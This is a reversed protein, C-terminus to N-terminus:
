VRDARITMGERALLVPMPATVWRGLEDLEFDSRAPAHHFLVLRGAGVDTAAQIVESITCHGYDDAIEKEADLFQAGHVLVAVDRLIADIEPSRRALQTHDPLYAVSEAGSDIRYGYTRGGKHEIEFARVELGDAVFRGPEIAHFRWAGLLEEPTIPFTPPGLWRAMLDRGTDGNQAPLFVDVDSQPHDGKEFFPIGMVHDLHLHTLLITGHFGPGDVHDSVSRLGTGADLVVTPGSAGDPIVGVCSTHGGYRAFDAGPAPTSGRVGFFHLKM